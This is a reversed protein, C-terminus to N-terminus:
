LSMKGPEMSEQAGALFISRELWDAFSVTVFSNILEFNIPKFHQQSSDNHM